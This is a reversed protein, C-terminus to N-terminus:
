NRIKKKVSNDCKPIITKSAADFFNPLKETNELM